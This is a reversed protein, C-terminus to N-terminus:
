GSSPTWTATTPWRRPFRVQRAPQRAAAPGQPLPRHAHGQGAPELGVRGDRLDRLDAVGRTRRQPQPDFLAATRHSLQALGRREAVWHAQVIESAPFTSTGIARVKGARVLDAFLMNRSSVEPLGPRFGVQIHIVTLGTTRAHNLVSTARTLFADKDDKAYISVIGAQCDMSLLATHAPYIPFTATVHAERQPLFSETSNWMRIRRWKCRSNGPPQRCISVASDSAGRSLELRGTDALGGRM